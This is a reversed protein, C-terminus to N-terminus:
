LLGLVRLETPAAAFAFLADDQGLDGFPISQGPALPYGDSADVTTDAGLYVTAAGNNLVLFSSEQEAGPGGQSGRGTFVEVAPDDATVVTPEFM